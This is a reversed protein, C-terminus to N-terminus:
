RRAFARSARARPRARTTLPPLLACSIPEPRACPIGRFVTTSIPPLLVYVALLVVLITQHRARKRDARFLRTRIFCLLALAVTLAVPLITFFLLEALYRRLEDRM